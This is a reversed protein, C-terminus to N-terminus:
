RDRCDWCGDHGEGAVSAIVVGAVITLIVAAAVRLRRTPLEAAYLALMLTAGVLVTAVARQFIVRSLLARSSSRLLPRGLLLMGYRQRSGNVGGDHAM